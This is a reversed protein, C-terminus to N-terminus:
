IKPRSTLFDLRFDCFHGIASWNPAVSFESLVWWDSFRKITRTNLTTGESAESVGSRCYFKFFTLLIIAMIIQITNYYFVDNWICIWPLCCITITAFFATTSLDYILSLWFSCRLGTSLTVTKKQGKSKKKGFFRPQTLRSLAM